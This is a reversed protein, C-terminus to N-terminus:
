VGGGGRTDPRTTGTANSSMSGKRSSIGAIAGSVAAEEVSRELFGAWLDALSEKSAQGSSEAFFETNL